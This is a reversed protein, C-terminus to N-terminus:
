RAYVTKVPNKRYAKSPEGAIYIGELYSLKRPLQQVMGRSVIFTASEGVQLLGSNKLSFFQIGISSACRLAEILSFGAKSYLKIEEVISDGHIIGRNGSGSGLAVQVGNKKALRLQKLQNEMTSQFYMKNKGVIGECGTKALLLSPIWLVGADAMKELNQEGMFYGQEIASCGSQLAEQVAVKGNAVVVSKQNGNNKIREALESAPYVPVFHTKQPGEEVSASNMVRLYDKGDILNEGVTIIEITVSEAFETRYRAVFGHLDDNDVCGLVGHSHCYHINQKIIKAIESYVTTSNKQRLRQDTAASCSLKLSCDFLPPMLTCHSYDVLNNKNIAAIDEIKKIATIVGDLVVLCVSKQVAGGTGDILRGALIYKEDTM